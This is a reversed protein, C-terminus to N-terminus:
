IQSGSCSGWIGGLAQCVWSTEPEWLLPWVAMAAPPQPHTRVNPVKLNSPTEPSWVVSEGPVFMGGAWGRLEHLLHMSGQGQALTHPWEQCGSEQPFPIEERTAAGRAQRSNLLVFVQAIDM